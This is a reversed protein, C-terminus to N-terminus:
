EQTLLIRQFLARCGVGINKGPSDRHVFSGPYSSLGGRESGPKSHELLLPGWGARGEQAYVSLMQFIGWSPDSVQPRHTIITARIMHSVM